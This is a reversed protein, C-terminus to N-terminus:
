SEYRILPIRINHYDVGAIEEPAFRTMAQMDLVHTEYRGDIVYCTGDGTFWAALGTVDNAFVATAANNSAIYFRGPMDAKESFMDPIHFLMGVYEQPDTELTKTTQVWNSGYANREVTDVHGGTDNRAERYVRFRKGQKAEHWWCELPANRAYPDVQAETYKVGRSYVISSPLWQLALESTYRSGIRKAISRGHSDIAQPVDVLCRPETPLSELQGDANAYWAYPSPWDATFLPRDVGTSQDDATPDFGLAHALDDDTTGATWDIRVDQDPAGVFGTGPVGIQEGFFLINVKNDSDLFVHVRKFGDVANVAAELKDHLQYLLDDDQWDWALFYTGAPITAFVAPM